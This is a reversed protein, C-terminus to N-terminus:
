TNHNEDPCTLVEGRMRDGKSHQGQLGNREALEWVLKESNEQLGKSLRMRRIPYFGM